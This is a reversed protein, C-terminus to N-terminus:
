FAVRVAVRKGSGGSKRDRSWVRGGLGFPGDNVRGVVEDVGDYAIIPLVPGFQEERILRAEDPLDRVLTPPIFYGARDLPEGGAIVNGCTAAERILDCVREFQRRNHVPRIGTCEFAGDGVVSQEAVLAM